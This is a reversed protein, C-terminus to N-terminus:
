VEALSIRVREPAPTETAFVRIRALGNTEAPKAAEHEAFNAHFQQLVSPPVSPSTQSLREGSERLWKVLDRPSMREARPLALEVSLFAFLKSYSLYAVRHGEARKAFAFRSGLTNLIGVFISVGGIAVNTYPSEPLFSSSGVSCAGAITSLIIVPLSVCSDYFSFLQEAKHHLWAYGRAREGEEALLQELAPTWSMPPHEDM